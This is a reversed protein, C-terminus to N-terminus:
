CLEFFMLPVGFCLVMLDVSPFLISAVRLMLCVGGGGFNVVLLHAGLSSLISAVILM